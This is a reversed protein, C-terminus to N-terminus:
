RTRRALCRIRPDVRRHALHQREGEATEVADITDPRREGVSRDDQDPVVGVRQDIGSQQDHDGGTRQREQGLLRDEPHRHESRQHPRQPRKRHHADLVFLLRRLGNRVLIGAVDETALVTGDPNGDLGDPNGDQTGDPDGDRGGRCLLCHGGDAGVLCCGAFYFLAVDDARFQIDESWRSLAARVQEPSWYNGIRLVATYGNTRLLESVQGAAREPWGPDSPGCRLDPHQGVAMVILFRRGGTPFAQEHGGGVNPGWGRM